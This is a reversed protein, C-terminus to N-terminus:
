LKYNEDTKPQPTGEKFISKKLKFLLISLPYFAVTFLVLNCVVHIVYLYIGRVYIVGFYYFFKGWESYICAFVADVASTFVGYIATLVVACVVPLVYEIKKMPEHRMKGLLTFAVVIVNWHVFYDIVWTHIGYVLTEELCFICTPIIAVFGFTYGFLACFLTVVEVNPILNLAWKGVILLAAM